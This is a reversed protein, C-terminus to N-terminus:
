EDKGRHATEQEDVWDEETYSMGRRGPVQRLPGAKYFRCSKPGYCFTELRYKVQSPNWHDIIMEVPMRCGWICTTCKSDYTRSDLRLHGRERYIELSPPIGFFPPGDPISDPPNELIKIGSTKYHGAIEMRTDPITTSVAALRFGVRFKHKDQAGPGVAVIFEGTNGGIQGKIRLNYGLYNHERQDLSRLLRIRSQISEILGSWSVKLPDTSSGM